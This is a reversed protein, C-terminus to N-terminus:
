ILEDYVSAIGETMKSVTYKKLFRKRGAEGYSACLSDDKVLKNLADSLALADSPPVTIGTEGNISVEPVSTKLNTNIIAKGAAMAELQVLGFTEASSISPFVFFRCSAMLARMRMDSVPGAFSVKKGLGAALLKLNAFFPGDGAIVLHSDVNKM